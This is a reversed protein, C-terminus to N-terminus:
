QYLPRFSLEYARMWDEHSMLIKLLMSTIVGRHHIMGQSLHNVLKFMEQITTM